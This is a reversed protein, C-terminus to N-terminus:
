QRNKFHDDLHPLLTHYTLGRTTGGNLILHGKAINETQQVLTTELIQTYDMPKPPYTHQIPLQRLISSFAPNYTLIDNQWHAVTIKRGVWPKEITHPFAMTDEEILLNRGIFNFTESPPVLCFIKSYKIQEIPEFPQRNFLGNIETEMPQTTWYNQKHRKQLQSQSSEEMREDSFRGSTAGLEMTESTTTVASLTEM